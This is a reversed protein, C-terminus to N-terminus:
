RKSVSKQEAPKIIIHKQRVFVNFDFIADPRIFLKASQSIAATM